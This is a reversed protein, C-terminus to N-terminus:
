RCSNGLFTEYNANRHFKLSISEWSLIEKSYQFFYMSTRM